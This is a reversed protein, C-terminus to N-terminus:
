ISFLPSMKNRDRATWRCPPAAELERSRMGVLRIGGDLEGFVPGRHIAERMVIQGPM